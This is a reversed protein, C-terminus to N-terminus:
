VAVASFCCTLQAHIRLQRATERRYSLKKNHQQPIQPKSRSNYNELTNDSHKPTPSSAGGNSLTIHAALGTTFASM